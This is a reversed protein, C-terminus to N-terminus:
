TDTRNNRLANKDEELRELFQLAGKVATPRFLHLIEEASMHERLVGLFAYIATVAIDPIEHKPM